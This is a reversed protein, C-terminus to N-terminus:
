SLYNAILIVGITTLLKYNSVINALSVIGEGSAGGTKGSGNNGSDDSGEGNGGSSGDTESGGNGGDENGSDGNGGGNGGIGGDGEGGGGGGSGNGGSGGGGASGNDGGDAGNGGGVGGNGGDDEGGGGSSNNSFKLESNCGGIDLPPCLLCDKNNLCETQQKLDTACGRVVSKSEMKAFCYSNASRAIPCKNPQLIEANDFCNSDMSSDCQICEFGNASINNCMDGACKYCDSHMFKPAEDYEDLDADDWNIMTPECKSRLEVALQGFCGQALVTAGDFVTVCSDLTDECEEAAAYSTRLCNIGDCKHCKIVANSSGVFVNFIILVVAGLKAETFTKKTHGFM